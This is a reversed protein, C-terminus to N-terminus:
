ANGVIEKGLVKSIMGNGGDIYALLAVIMGTVTIGAVWPNRRKTITKGDSTTEIIENAQISNIIEFCSSAIGM